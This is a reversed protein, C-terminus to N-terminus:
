SAKAKITKTLWTATLPLGDNRNCLKIRTAYQPAHMMLLSAVHADSNMEVMAISKHAAIFDTVVSSMPLARLRLFSTKIGQAALMDRAEDIAPTTSGFGIIGIEAGETQSVIPAPVVLRATEFKRALREMNHEWDDSRETLQAKDNHGSGRTFYSALPHNTGPLTRYGIGDGDVDKYRAFGKAEAVQEATL